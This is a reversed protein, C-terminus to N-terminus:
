SGGQVFDKVFEQVSLQQNDSDVFDKVSLQNLDITPDALAEAVVALDEATLKVLIDNQTRKSIFGTKKTLERLALISKIAQYQIATLAKM